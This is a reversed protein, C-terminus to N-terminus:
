HLLWLDNSRLADHEGGVVPYAPGMGMPPTVGQIMERYVDPVHLHLKLENASSVHELNLGIYVSKFLCTLFFAPQRFGIFQLFCFSALAARPHLWRSVVNYM